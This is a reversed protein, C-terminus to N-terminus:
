KVTELVVESGCGGRMRFGLVRLLDAVNAADCTKIEIVKGDGSLKDLEHAQSLYRHVLKLYETQELAENGHSAEYGNTIVNHALAPLVDRPSSDPSIAAMRAFSRLPGPIPITPWVDAAVPKGIGLVKGTASRYAESDRAAADANGALLDLMAMRRAAEGARSKDKAHEAATLLKAYAERTGPDGYRDLFEANDVQNQVNNPNGTATRALAARKTPTDSAEQAQLVGSGAILTVIAIVPVAKM